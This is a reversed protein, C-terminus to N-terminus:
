VKEGDSIPLERIESAIKPGMVVHGDNAVKACRERMDEQGARFGEAYGEESAEKCIQMSKELEQKLGEERASKEASKIQAAIDDLMSVKNRPFAKSPGFSKMYPRLRGIIKNAREEATMQRTKDM